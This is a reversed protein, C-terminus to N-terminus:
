GQPVFEYHEDVQIDFSVTLMSKVNSCVQSVKKPCSPSPGKWQSSQQKIEPDYEYVLMEDGTVTKLPFEPDRELERSSITRTSVIKTKSRV